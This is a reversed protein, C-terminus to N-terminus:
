NYPSISLSNLLLNRNISIVITVQYKKHNFNLRNSMKDIDDIIIELYKKFGEDDGLIKHSMILHFFFNVKSNFEVNGEKYTENYISLCSEIHRKAKSFENTTAYYHALYSHSEMKYHKQIYKVLTM